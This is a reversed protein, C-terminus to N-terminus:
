INGCEEVAARVTDAHGEIVPEGWGCLGSDTELKLFLWRPPVKYLTMGTIKM